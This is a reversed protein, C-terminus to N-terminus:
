EGLKDVKTIIQAFRQPDLSAGGVLAGDVNPPTMLDVVNRPKVSGGYLVRLAKASEKDYLKTIVERIFGAGSDADLPSATEGTGIAWIPEYAIIMQSIHQADLGELGGSLEEKIVSETEEAKRQELDEGVCLIPLMSKEVVQEIKKNVSQNTEGFMQRRESHGVMVYECDLEKLMSTSIEGTYAGSEKYYVNQAALKIDTDKLAKRLADLSTFPPAIVIETNEIQPLLQAFKGVFELSEMKTKNMKWNAAIIPTRM